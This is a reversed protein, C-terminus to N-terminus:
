AILLDLLCVLLSGNKTASVSSSVWDIQAWFEVSCLSQVFEGMFVFGDNTTRFALRGLDSVASMTRDRGDQLAPSTVLDHLVKNAQPDL